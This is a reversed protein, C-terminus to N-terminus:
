QTTPCQLVIRSSPSQPVELSPKSVPYPVPLSFAPFLLIINLLFNSFFLFFPSNLLPTTGFFSLSPPVYLIPSPFLSPFWFYEFITVPQPNSFNPHPLFWLISSPRPTSLLTPNHCLNSFSQSPHNSFIQPFYFSHFNHLPLTSLRSSIIFFTTPPADHTETHFLNFPAKELRPIFAQFSYWFYGVFM